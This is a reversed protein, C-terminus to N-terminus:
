GHIMTDIVEVAGLKCHKKGKDEFSEDEEVDENGKKDKSFRCTQTNRGCRAADIHSASYM